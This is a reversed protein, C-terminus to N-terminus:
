TVTNKPCVIHYGFGDFPFFFSNKEHYHIKNEVFIIYLNIGFADRQSLKCNIVKAKYITQLHFKGDQKQKRWYDFLDYCPYNKCVISQLPMEINQLLMEISQLLTEISQLPMEISQLPTEISQLPMEISQLPTEISQLLTEISQLPTEIRWLPMEISQLPTEIRWM